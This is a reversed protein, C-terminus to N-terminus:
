KLTENLFDRLKLAGERDLSIIDWNRSVDELRLVNSGWQVTVGYELEVEETNLIEEPM